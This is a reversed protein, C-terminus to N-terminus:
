SFALMCKSSRCGTGAGGRICGIAAGAQSCERKWGDAGSPWCCREDGAIRLFDKTASYIGGEGKIPKVFVTAIKALQIVKKAEESNGYEIFTVGPMIPKFPLRYQEESTLTIAGMTRGHFYSTFAIFETAHLKKNLHSFRQFKRVFKIAAENAETGSNTFFVHDAFTSKVLRKGLTVQPISYYVNSVHTLTNPRSSGEWGCRLAQMGQWEQDGGSSPRVNGCVFEKGDGDSRQEGESGTGSFGGGEATCGVGPM